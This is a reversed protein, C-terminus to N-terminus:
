IGFGGEKLGPASASFHHNVGTTFDAGRGCNWYDIASIRHRFRQRPCPQLDHRAHRRNLNRRAM